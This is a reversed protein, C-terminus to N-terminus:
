LYRKQPISHLPLENYWRKQITEGSNPSKINEAPINDEKKRFSLQLVHLYPFYEQNEPLFHCLMSVM